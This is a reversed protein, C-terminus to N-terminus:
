RTPRWTVDEIPAGRVLRNVRAILRANDAEVQRGRERLSQNEVRLSQNEAKLGAVEAKLDEVWTEMSDEDVTSM